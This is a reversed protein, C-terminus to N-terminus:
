RSGPTARRSRARSALPPADPGPAPPQLCDRAQQCLQEGLPTLIRTGSGTPPGCGRTAPSGPPWRQAPRAGHHRSPRHSPARRSAPSWAPWRTTGAPTMAPPSCRSRRPSSARTWCAPLSRRGQGAPTATLPLTTPPSPSTPSGVSPTAAAPQRGPLTVSAPSSAASPKRRRGSQPFHRRSPAPQRHRATRRLRSARRLARGQVAPPPQRASPRLAPLPKGPAPRAAPLLLDGSAVLAAPMEGPDEALCAPCFRTTRQPAWALMLTAPPSPGAALMATVAPLALGASVCIAALQAASSGDPVAAGTGHDQRAPMGLAEALHGPNVALRAAYAHLWLGFPEGDLPALTFPLRGTM